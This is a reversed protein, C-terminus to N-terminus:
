SRIKEAKKAVLNPESLGLDLVNLVRCSFCM